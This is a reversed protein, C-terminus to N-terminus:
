TTIWPKLFNHWLSRKFDIDKTKHGFINALRIIEWNSGRKLYPFIEEASQASFCRWHGDPDTFIHYGERAYPVFKNFEVVSIINKPSLILRWDGKALLVAQKVVFNKGQKTKNEIFKLNNILPVCRKIMEGTADGSSDDIVIIESNYNQNELHRYIDFVTLLIDRANNHTPIIVSM